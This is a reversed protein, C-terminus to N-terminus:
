FLTAIVALLIFLPRMVRGVTSSIVAEGQDRGSMSLVQSSTLIDDPSLTEGNLELSCEDSGECNACTCGRLVEQVTYQDGLLTPSFNQFSCRSACGWTLKDGSSSDGGSDTPVSISGGGISIPSVIGSGSGALSVVTDDSLKEKTVTGDSDTSKRYGECPQFGDICGCSCGQRLEGVTAETSGIISPNEIGSCGEACSICINDPFCIESRVGQLGALLVLGFLGKVASVSLRNGGM